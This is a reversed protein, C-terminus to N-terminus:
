GFLFQFVVPNHSKNNLHTSGKIREKSPFGKFIIGHVANKKSQEIAINADKAFSWIKVQYSGQIGTAYAEIEYRFKLTQEDAKKQKQGFTITPLILLLAFHLYKM